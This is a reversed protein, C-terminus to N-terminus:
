VPQQNFLFESKEKGSPMQASVLAVTLVCPWPMPPVPIPYTQEKVLLRCNILLLFPSVGTVTEWLKYKRSFQILHLWRKLLKSDQNDEFRFHTNKYFMIATLKDVPLASLLQKIQKNGYQPYKIEVSIQMSGSGMLGLKKVSDKWKICAETM